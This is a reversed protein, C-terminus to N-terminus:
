DLYIVFVMHIWWLLYGVLWGSALFFFLSTIKRERTSTTTSVQSQCHHEVAHHHHRHRLRRRLRPLPRRAHRLPQASLLQHIQEEAERQLLEAAEGEAEPGEEAERRGVAM